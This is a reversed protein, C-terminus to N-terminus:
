NIKLNNEPVVDAYRVKYHLDLFSIVMAGVLISFGVIVVKNIKNVRVTGGARIKDGYKRMVEKHIQDPNYM